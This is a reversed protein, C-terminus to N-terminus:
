ALDLHFGAEIMPLVTSAPYATKWAALNNQMLEYSAMASYPQLRFAAFYGASLWSGDNLRERSERLERGLTELTGFDGKKFTQFVATEFQTRDQKGDLNPKTLASPDVPLLAFSNQASQLKILPGTPSQELQGMIQVTRGVMARHAPLPDYVKAPFWVSVVQKPYPAGFSLYYGDTSRSYSVAKVEDQFQVTQGIKDTVQSANPIAVDQAVAVAVASCVCWVSFFTRHM